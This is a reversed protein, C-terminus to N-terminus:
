QTIDQKVTFSGGFATVVSADQLTFQVDYQYKGVGLVGMEVATKRFTVFEGDISISGGQTDFGLKLERDSFTRIEAKATAGTLDIGTVKFGHEFSDGRIVEIGINRYTYAM